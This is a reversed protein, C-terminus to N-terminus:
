LLKEYAIKVSNDFWIEGCYTFGLKALLHKMICNDADTDVRFATVGRQRALEEAAAFAGVSYGRGRSQASAALRHVVMYPTDKGSLWQGKLGEYAPEGDFDICLYALAEGADDLLFYGKHGAIDRAICDRDPYGAQWQDIGQAKLYAKADNIFGMAKDLEEATVLRLANM